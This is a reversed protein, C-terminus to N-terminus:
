EEDARSAKSHGHFHVETVSKPANCEWFPKVSSPLDMRFTALRLSPSDQAMYFLCARPVGPNVAKNKRVTSAMLDAVDHGSM